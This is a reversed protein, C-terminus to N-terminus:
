HKVVKKGSPYEVTEGDKILPQEGPMPTVKYTIHTIMHNLVTFSQNHGSAKINYPDIFAKMGGSALINGIVDDIFTSLTSESKAYVNYVQVIKDPLPVGEPPQKWKDLHGIFVVHYSAM